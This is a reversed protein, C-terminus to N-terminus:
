HNKTWIYPGGKGRDKGIRKINGKKELKLLREGITKSNVLLLKSLKYRTLQRKDLIKLIEKNLNSFNPKNKIIKMGLDLSEQKRNIPLRRISMIDKYAEKFSNPSINLYYTNGSKMIKQCKYGLKDCIKRLDKILNLSGSCFNITRDKIYGEDILFARIIGILFKRKGNFFESPLRAESGRFNIKFKNLLIKTIAKSFGIIYRTLYNERLEKTIYIQQKGFILLEKKFEKVGEKNTLAYKSTRGVENLASGDCLLHTVIERLHISDKIPLNLNYIKHDGAKARISKIYKQINNLDYNWKNSKKSHQIISRIAWMPCYQDKNTTNIKGRRWSLMTPNSVKLKKALHRYSKNIKWATKFFKSKFEDELLIYVDDPFDKLEIKLNNSNM